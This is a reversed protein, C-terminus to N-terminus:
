LPEITIGIESDTYTVSMAADEIVLRHIMDNPGDNIKKVITAILTDASGTIRAAQKVVGIIRGLESQEEKTDCPGVIEIRSMGSGCTIVVVVVSKKAATFIRRGNKKGFQQFDTFM